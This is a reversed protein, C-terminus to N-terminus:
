VEVREGPLIGLQIFLNASLKSHSKTKRRRLRLGLAVLGVVSLGFTTASEPVPEYEFEEGPLPPTSDPSIRNLTGQEYSYALGILIPESFATGTLSINFPTGDALYGAPISIGPYGAQATISSGGSAPFLIADLDYENILFGLGEDRALRLATAREELYQPQDQELDISESGLLLRQGYKLAAESSADNFAIVDTLLKVSADPGLSALYANLDRKFEYSLVPIIDDFRLTTERATPINEYVIEAGLREMDAIAQEIIARQENTLNDWYLDRPVGIRAGKLGDKELFKTYDTYSKGSSATTASDSPDIDTIAGLVIAADTVNRTLPGATDRSLSIPVIGDRSVLGLTPRIGVVSNANAPSLISGATDTGITFAALNAAAAVGSGSSSGGPSLVPRGDGGPLPVPNYPNFVYGGVSSYGAPTGISLFGAFESLNVKGLIVAGADRLQQTIFADDPPFSNELALSGATTPLDFTDINDKLLVPIGHLVGRSGTVARESDLSAATELANPNLTLVSNLGPAGRDYAEIRNLYLQTLQQSTLAGADFATNIDAITAEELRFIAAQAAVPVLGLMAVQAFLVTTTQKACKFM